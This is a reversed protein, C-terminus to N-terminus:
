PRAVVTARINGSGIEQGPLMFAPHSPDTGPSAGLSVASVWILKQTPQQVDKTLENGFTRKSTFFVWAFGGDSFPSVSPFFEYENDRAQGAPLYSKGGAYGNALDLKTATGSAVDVIMLHGTGTCM